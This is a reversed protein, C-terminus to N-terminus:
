FQHIMGDDYGHFFVNGQWRNIFSQPSSDARNGLFQYLFSWGTSLPNSTDGAVTFSAIAMDEGDNSVILTYTGPSRKGISVTYEARRSPVPSVAEVGYIEEWHVNL